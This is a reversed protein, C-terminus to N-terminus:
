EEVKQTELNCRLYVTGQQFNKNKRCIVELVGRSELLTEKWADLKKDYDKEGKDPETEKLYYEPRYLFFIKDGDQEIEGSERLHSLQPRKNEQSEVSRNLQCLLVVPLNNDKAIMKLKKTIQGVAFSLSTGKTDPKLLSLHDVFIIDIKHERVLKKAQLVLDDITTESKDNILINLDKLRQKASLFGTMSKTNKYDFMPTESECALIRHALIHGSMELSLFAVNHGQKAIRVAMNQAIMTKGMAPRAAIISLESKCFGGFKYDFDSYGSTIITRDHGTKIYDEIQELRKEAYTGLSKYNTDTIMDTASLFMERAKVVDGITANLTAQKALELAEIAKSKRHEWALAQGYEKINAGSVTDMKGVLQKFEEDEFKKKELVLDTNRGTSYAQKFISFTKRLLPHNFMEETLFSVKEISKSSSIISSVIYGEFEDTSSQNINEQM